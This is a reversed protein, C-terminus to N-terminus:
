GGAPGGNGRSETEHMFIGCHRVVCEPVTAVNKRQIGIDGTQNSQLDRM